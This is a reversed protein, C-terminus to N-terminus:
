AATARSLLQQLEIRAACRLADSAPSRYATRDFPARLRVVWIGTALTAAQAGVVARIQRKLLNRTVARRAHRKPVVAGLWVSELDAEPLDDVVTPQQARPATSLEGAPPRKAGLHHLAFHASSVRSRTRLVREFDDSRKLFAIVSREATSDPPLVALGSRDSPCVSAARPAARM